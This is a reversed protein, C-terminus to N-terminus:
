RWLNGTELLAPRGVEAPNYGTSLISQSHRRAMRQGSSRECEWRVRRDCKGKGVCGAFCQRLVPSPRLPHHSQSLDAGMVGLRALAGRGCGSAPWDHWWRAGNQVKAGYEIDAKVCSRTHVLSCLATLAEKVVRGEGVVSQRALVRAVLLAPCRVVVSCEAQESGSM